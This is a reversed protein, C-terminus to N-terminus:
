RLGLSARWRGDGRDAAVLATFRALTREIEATNSGGGKGFASALSSVGSAGVYLTPKLDDGLTAAAAQFDPKDGLRSSPSIAEQLVGDGVAIVFRDGAAAIEVPAPVGQVRVSVGADVGSARLPRVVAGSAFRSVLSGLKPVAARTAAPDKSRVVLAGGITGPSDGSLFVAGEGMWALLDKKIDLGAQASVLGLIADSGGLQQELKSGVDGIGAALWAKGTLAAVFEPDAPEGQKAGGVTAIDARIADGDAHFKAGVATPLSNTLTGAALSGFMGGASPVAAGTDALARPALYARGVGDEGDVRDLAERFPKADALADGAAADIAATVAATRGAVVRDEVLAYADGDAGIRMDVDRHRQTRTGQAQVWDGAADPDSTAAVVAGDGSGKAMPASLTFAAVKEGLWPEVDGKGRLMRRLTAEPDSTGLVKGAAALADDRQAGEPAVTVEVYAPARAPVVAAPDAATEDGSGCGAAIAVTLAAVLALPARRPTAISV